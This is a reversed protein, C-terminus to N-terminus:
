ISLLPRPKRCLQRAVPFPTTRAHRDRLLDVARLLRTVEGSLVSSQRSTLPAKRSPLKTKARTYIRFICSWWRRMQATEKLLILRRAHLRATYARTRPLRSHIFVCIEAMGPVYEQRNSNVKRCKRSLM